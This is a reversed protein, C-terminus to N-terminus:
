GNLHKAECRCAHRHCLRGFLSTIACATACMAVMIGIVTLIKILPSACEHHLRFAVLPSKENQSKYLGWEYHLKHRMEPRKIAEWACAASQCITKKM